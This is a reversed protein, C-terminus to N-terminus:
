PNWQPERYIWFQHLLFNGVLTILTAVVQALLYPLFYLMVSFCVTNSALGCSAVVAFKPLAQGHHAGGGFTFYFNLLYNAIASLCFALASSVVANLAALEVLAALLLYQLGTAVGGVAAFRGARELWHWLRRPVTVDSDPRRM